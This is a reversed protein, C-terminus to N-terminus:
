HVNGGVPGVDKKSLGPSHLVQSFGPHCVSFQFGQGTGAAGFRGKRDIAIFNISLDFGRPDIRAIRRITEKCAEEPSLGQRMFEVVQYSGCYRMVNEGLGTAGAAGVENDVYLGSGLIPSDGVRGPLKYGLGSTSCGGSLNGDPGLIVMAITDHGQTSRAKAADQAAKWREWARHQGENVETVPAFGEKLAFERAGAGVLLVHPTKEMVRRAVSIPHAIGELAAVGGGRHGPGDMICADLQVVGAANPIGALGVSGNSRDSETLGIGAELADLRSGGEQMRRLAAENAPKGFPWTSVILPRATTEQPMPRDPQAARGPSAALTTILVTGSGAIFDRRTMPLPKMRDFGRTVGSTEDLGIKVAGSAALGKL